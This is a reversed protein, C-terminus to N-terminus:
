DGFEALRIKEGPHYIGPLIPEERSTNLKRNFINKKDALSLTKFIKSIVM